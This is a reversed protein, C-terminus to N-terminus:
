VEWRRTTVFNSLKDVAATREFPALNLSSHPVSFAPLKTIRPNDALPALKLFRTLPFHFCAHQDTICSDAAVVSCPQTYKCLSAREPLTDGLLEQIGARAASCPHRINRARCCGVGGVPIAVYRIEIEVLVCIGGERCLRSGVQQGKSYM